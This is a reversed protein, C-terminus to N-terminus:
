RARVAGVAEGLDHDELPDVAVEFANRREDLHEQVFRSECRLQMVGVDHLDEVDSLAFVADEVDHLVEVPTIDTTQEPGHASPQRQLVDDRDRGSGGRAQMV